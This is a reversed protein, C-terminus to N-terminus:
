INMGGFLLGMEVYGMVNHILKKNGRQERNYLENNLGFRASFNKGLWFSLGLDGVLMLQNGIATEMRGVGLSIFQDFYLVSEKTMRVKGYVTNYSTFLTMSSVSYDSDPLLSYENLLTQGSQSLQNSYRGYRAGLEWKDNFHYRYAVGGQKTVLHGDANFNNAGFFSVEHRKVLGSYRTNVVYLKDKSVVPTVKHSPINLQELKEELSDKALFSPSQLILLSLIIKKM